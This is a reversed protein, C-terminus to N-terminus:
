DILKFPIEEPKEVLEGDFAKIIPGFTQLYMKPPLYGIMIDYKKRIVNLVNSLAFRIGTLHENATTKRLPFDYNMIVPLTEDKWHVPGFLGSLTIRDYAKGEIFGNRELNKIVRKHTRSKSYPREITCSLIILNRSRPKFGQLPFSYDYTEVKGEIPKFETNSKRPYYLSATEIRKRWWYLNHLAILAMIDSRKTETRDSGKTYYSPATMIANIVEYGIKAMNECAWCNCIPRNNPAWNSYKNSSPDYVRMRFASQAYTSNDFSIERFVKTNRLMNGIVSEGVGFVHLPASPSSKLNMWRLVESINESILNPNSALPVQSGLALGYNSNNLISQPIAAWLKVLYSKVELPTRGHVALYIKGHYSIQQAEHVLWAANDISFKQLKSVTDTTANPSIPNDLSALRNPKYKLQLELIDEKSIRLNWKKLDIKNTYLLQFGGSDLFIDRSNGFTKELEFTLRKAEPLEFGWDEWAAQSLNYTTFHMAQVMLNPNLSINKLNRKIDKWIGGNRTLGPPGTLLHIVPYFNVKSTNEDLDAM